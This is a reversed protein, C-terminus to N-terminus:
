NASASFGSTARDSSARSCSDADSHEVIADCRQICPDFLLLLGVKRAGFGDPAKDLDPQLRLPFLSARREEM